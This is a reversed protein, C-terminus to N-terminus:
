LRNWMRVAASGIISACPVKWECQALLLVPLALPGEAARVLPRLLHDRVLKRDGV